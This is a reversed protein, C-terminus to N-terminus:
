RDIMVTLQEKVMRLDDEMQRLKTNAIVFQKTVTKAQEETKRAQEKAQIIERAMEERETQVSFNETSALSSPQTLSSVGQRYNAAL